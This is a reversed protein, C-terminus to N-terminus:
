KEWLIIDEIGINIAKKDQGNIYYHCMFPESRICDPTNLYYDSYYAMKIGELEMDYDNYVTLDAFIYLIDDKKVDSKRDFRDGVYYFNDKLAANADMPGPKTSVALSLGSSNKHIIDISGEWNCGVPLEPVYGRVCVYGDDDLYFELEDYFVKAFEAQKDMNLLHRKSNYDEKKVEIGEVVQTDPVQDMDTVPERNLVKDLKEQPTEEKGNDEKPRLEPYFIRAIVSISEARNLVGNPKFNGDPYGTIIGLSYCILVDEKNTITTYDKIQSKYKSTSSPLKKGESKLFAVAIKAMDERSIPQDLEKLDKYTILKKDKAAKAYEAFWPQGAPALKVGVEPKLLATIYEAYSLSKTPQFYRKGDQIVGDISGDKVLKKLYSAYWAGKPVDMFVEDMTKNEYESKPLAGSVMQISLLFVLCFGLIRKMMFM